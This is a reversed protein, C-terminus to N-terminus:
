EVESNKDQLGSKLTVYLDLFVASYWRLWSRTHLVSIDIKSGVFIQLINKDWIIHATISADPLLCSKNDNWHPSVHNGNQAHLGLITDLMGCTEQQYSSHDSVDESVGKNDEKWVETDLRWRPPTSIDQSVDESDEKWDSQNDTALLEKKLIGASNTASIERLSRSKVCKVAFIPFYWYILLRNPFSLHWEWVWYKCPFIM